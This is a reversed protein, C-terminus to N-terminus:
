AVKKKLLDDNAALDRSKAMKSRNHNAGLRLVNKQTGVLETGSNLIFDM